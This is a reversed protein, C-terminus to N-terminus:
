KPGRATPLKNNSGKIGKSKYTGLGKKEAKKNINQEVTRCLAESNM